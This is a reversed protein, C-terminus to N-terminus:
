TYLALFKKLERPLIDSSFDAPEKPLFSVKFM